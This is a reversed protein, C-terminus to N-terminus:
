MEERRGEEEEEEEREEEEEFTAAAVVVTLGASSRANEVTWLVKEAKNGESFNGWGAREDDGVGRGGLEV